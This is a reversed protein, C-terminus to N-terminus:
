ETSHNHSIVRREQVYRSRLLRHLRRNLLFARSQCAYAFLSVCGNLFTPLVYIIFFPILRFKPALM